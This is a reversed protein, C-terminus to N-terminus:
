FTSTPNTIRWWGGPGKLATDLTLPVSTSETGIEVTLSGVRSNAATEGLPRLSAHAAVSADGYVLQDVSRSAIAHATAGWPTAYTGYVDGKTVAHITQFGARVGALLRQVDANLSPHDKGGLMVGVVTVEHGDITQKTAFLLCAGAQPLTGTKIGVVSDVGLLKNSNQITGVGPITIQPTSVISAIDKNALALTGVKLLDTATSQNKSNLGTPEVLSTQHLGHQALWSKVAVVYAATSGFAWTALAGAYNNASKILAVQLTQKETLSSGAAMPAVEGDQALYTDYLDHDAATFTIKPGSGGDLPHKDLVVLATIVKSISAISRPKTDGSTALSDDFGLAEVATAGYNPFTLSLKSESPARFPTVVATTAHVPALLTAPIYAGVALVVVLVAALGTRRAVRSTGPGAGKKTV